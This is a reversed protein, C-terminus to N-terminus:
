MSAISQENTQQQGLSPAARADLSRKTEDLVALNSPGNQLVHKDAKGTKAAEAIMRDRALAKGEDFAKKGAGTQLLDDISKVDIDYGLSRAEDYAADIDPKMSSSVRERLEKATYSKDLNAAKKLSDSLRDPQGAMRTKSATELTERAVPDLNAATRGLSRGEEGIADVLMGEPGLDDINKSIQDPSVGSKGISKRLRAAAQNEPAGFRRKVGEKVSRGLSWLGAFAPAAVAGTAGGAAAGKALGKAREEAGGESNAFGAASGYLIGDKVGQLALQATGKAGKMFSLGAGAATGAGTVGGAIETALATKPNTERFREIDGRERDLRADYREKFTGGTGNVLPDLAAAGAAVLEDGAYFTAGQLFSRAAGEGTGPDKRKMPDGALRKQREQDSEGAM